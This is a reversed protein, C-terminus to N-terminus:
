NLVDILCVSLIIRDAVRSRDAVANAEEDRDM